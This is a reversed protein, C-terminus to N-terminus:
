ESLWQEINNAVDNRDVVKTRLSEVVQKWTLASPFQFPFKLRFLIMEKLCKDIVERQEISICKLTEPDIELEMGIDYWRTRADYLSKYVDNLDKSTLPTDALCHRNATFNCTIICENNYTLPMM